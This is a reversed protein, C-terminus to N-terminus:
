PLITAVAVVGLPGTARRACPGTSRRSAASRLAPVGLSQRGRRAAWGEREVTSPGPWSGLSATAWGGKPSSALSLTMSCNGQGLGQFVVAIGWTARLVGLYRQSM